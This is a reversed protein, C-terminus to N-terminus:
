GAKGITRIYPVCVSNKESSGNKQYRRDQAALYIGIDTLGSYAKLPFGIAL